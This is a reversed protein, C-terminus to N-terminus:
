LLCHFEHAAPSRSGAKKQGERHGRCGSEYNAPNAASASNLGQSFSFSFGTLVEKGKKRKFVPSEGVIVIPQPAAAVNILVSATVSNFDTSNAPDFTVTLSQDNGVPLITGQAPSYVFTGASPSGDFSATADLQAAGLPTGAVIGAPAAWSITPTAKAM